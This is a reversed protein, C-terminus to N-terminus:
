VNKKILLAIENFSGLPAVRASLYKCVNIVRGEEKTASCIKGQYLAPVKQVHFPWFQFIELWKM